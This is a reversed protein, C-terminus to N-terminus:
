YSVPASLRMKYPWRTGIVVGVLFAVLHGADGFIEPLLLFKAVLVAIVIAALLARRRAGSVGMMWAGLCGFGGFSAGVDGAPAWDWRPPIGALHMPFVVCAATLLLTVVNAAWFILLARRTGALWEYVGVSGAVFLVMGLLMLTNRVFFAGTVLTHWHERWFYLPGFGWARRLEDSLRGQASGNWVALAVITIEFLVTFPVQRAVHLWRRRDLIL